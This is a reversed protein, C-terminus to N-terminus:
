SSRSVPRLLIATLERIITPTGGSVSLAIDVTPPVIEVVTIKRRADRLQPRPEDHLFTGLGQYWELSSQRPQYSQM